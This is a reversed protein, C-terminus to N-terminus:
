IKDNKIQVVDNTMFWGKHFSSYNNPADNLYRKMLSPGKIM